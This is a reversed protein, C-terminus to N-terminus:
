CQTSSHGQGITQLEESDFLHSESLQDKVCMESIEIIDEVVLQCM